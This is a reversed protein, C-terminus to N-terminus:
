KALPSLLYDLQEQSSRNDTLLGRTVVFHVRKRLWLQFQMPPATLYGKLVVRWDLYDFLNLEEMIQFTEEANHHEM